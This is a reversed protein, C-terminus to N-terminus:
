SGIKDLASQITLRFTNEMESRNEIRTPKPAQDGPGGM